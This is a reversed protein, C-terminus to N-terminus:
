LKEGGSMELIKYMKRRGSFGVCFDSGEKFNRM